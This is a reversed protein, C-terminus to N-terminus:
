DVWFGPAKLEGFAKGVEEYQSNSAADQCDVKKFNYKTYWIGYVLLHNIKLM